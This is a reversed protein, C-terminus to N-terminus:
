QITEDKITTGTEDVYKVTMKPGDFDLIAFGFMAWHELGSAIFRRDEYVAPKIYTDDAKHTMYVPVGGHGILRANQVNVTPEYIIFRHEHGWFWTHIRKKSLVPAVKQGLVKGLDPGDEYASFLQHHSLLVTKQGNADLVQQVWSAQPDKLGNDDWATDLGLLQWDSNFLRFFSAQGQKRFRPDKLVIEFYAHGGSYMDHNGNLSWSGIKDAEETKVPWYQLFRDEYEFKWGSYYVDGLHIVHVERSERKGQEVAMRMATAVLQARPIGSGWDGVLIVRAQDSIQVPPPPAPNFAHRGRLRRVGMAILSSVWGPDTISFPDLLRRDSGRRMGAGALRKGTVAPVAQGAGRRVDPMEADIVEHKSEPHQFYFELASQAISVIPDRSLFSIDDLPVSSGRGRRESPPPVFGPQGSSAAQERQLAIDVSDLAAAYDAPENDTAGPGGGSRSRDVDNRLQKRIGDLQQVVFDRNLVEAIMSGDEAM